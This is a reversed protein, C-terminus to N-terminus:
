ASVVSRWAQRSPEDTLRYDVATDGKRVDFYCVFEADRSSLYSAMAKLWRARDSGDGDGPIRASGTEAIAFPKGISASLDAARHFIDAPDAYRVPSAHAGWNYCDWAMVDIVDDGAYYDRWNRGSNGVPWCMLNLTAKVDMRGTCRQVERIHRWAARYEAATFSGQEVDNEPEHSYIWYVPYRTPAGKFWRALEADHRGTVVDRPAYRFSVVVPRKGYAAAGPWPSPAGPYFM